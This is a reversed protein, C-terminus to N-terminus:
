DFASKAKAIGLVRKRRDIAYEQRFRSLHVFRDLLEYCMNVEADGPEWFANPQGCVRFRVKIPQPLYYDWNLAEILPTIISINELWVKYQQHAPAIAEEFIIRVAFDPPLDKRPGVPTRANNKLTNKIFELGREAKAFDEDCFEARESPLENAIRFDELNGPDRGYTLCAMDYLRQIEMAHPDAFPLAMKDQESITWEVRWADIIAQMRTIVSETLPRVERPWVKVDEPIKSPPVYPFSIAQSLLTVATLYDAQDEERALVPLGAVDMLVHIMEHLLTFEVNAIVFPAIADDLPAAPDAGRVIPQSFAPSQWLLAGIIILGRFLARRPM